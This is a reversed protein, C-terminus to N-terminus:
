MGIADAHPFACPETMELPLPGEGAVAAVSEDCGGNCGYDLHDSVTHGLSLDKACKRFQFGLVNLLGQVEGSDSDPLAPAREDASRLIRLLCREITQEPSRAVCTRSQFM